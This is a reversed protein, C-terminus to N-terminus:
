GHNKKIQNPSLEDIEFNELLAMGMDESPDIDLIEYVKSATKEEVKKLKEKIEALTNEYAQKATSGGANLEEDSVERWADLLKRRANWYAQSAHKGGNESGFIEDARM